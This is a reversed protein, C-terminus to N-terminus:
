ESGPEPTTDARWRGRSVQIVQGNRALDQLRQYVWPRSMGTQDMLEPVTIGDGPALSLAAWLFTEPAHGADGTARGASDAHEPSAPPEPSGPHTEAREETARRSVQDLAPRAEAHQSATDSVADDTVLYARARRPIDHEPASIFFKGPANLTHAHWGASLMGQGLILDVDKRERVRFCIRVDMQSRLAGQGMAKQTPRQTAAILTVAVARGRRGISDADGTADPATEVLEAYEDVIVILAPMEVTPDWVRRGTAALFAARAELVAVADALLARAETPTTALRDICAAWPGLEMGRKLDIAWIVVDACATLNSMLVNLGGSKGSGSVGGILAHRRLLLLRAPMADEFPGLDIPESISTIPRGPWTIADAHPDSDLVRLEFRNALDDTTPYARVAGRHTGLASELAPLRTIVDQITQGRALAFRARWGWVDVVASMLRSGGLGVAAAIEPWAALAREVRVRARRRRHAWWPVALVLAGIILVDPLPDRHPGIATAAAVWGGASAIVTMAYGREAGTTLGLRRGALAAGLVAVATCTALAPWWRPHAAHLLWATLATAAALILPALESRYRWLLRVLTLIVLDPLQDGSNIVIMPQLGYRRMRRAQRRMRRPNTM